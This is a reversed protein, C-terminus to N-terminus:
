VLIQFRFRLSTNRMQERHLTQFRRDVDKRSVFPLMKEIGTFYQDYKIRLRELRTELEDLERQIEAPTM